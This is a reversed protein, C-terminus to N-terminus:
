KWTQRVIILCDIHKQAKSKLLFLLNLQLYYQIVM